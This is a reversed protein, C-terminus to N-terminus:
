ARLRVALEGQGGEVVVCRDREGGAKRPSALRLSRSARGRAASLEARCRLSQKLACCASITRDLRPAHDGRPAVLGRLDRSPGPSSVIRAQARKFRRGLIKWADAQSQRPCQVQECSCDGLPHVICGGVVVGLVALGRASSETTYNKPLSGHSRSFRQATLDSARKGGAGVTSGCDTIRCTVSSCRQSWTSSFLKARIGSPSKTEAPCAAAASARYQRPFVYLLAAIRRLLQSACKTPSALAEAVTWIKSAPSEEEFADSPQDAM